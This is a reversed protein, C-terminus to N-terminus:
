PLIKLLCCFAFTTTPYNAARRWCIGLYDKTPRLGDTVYDPTAVYAYAEYEKDALEGDVVTVMVKRRTAHGQDVRESKDLHNLSGQELFHLFGYLASVLYTFIVDANNSYLHVM